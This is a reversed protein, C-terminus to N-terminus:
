GRERSRMRERINENKEGIIPTGAKRRRTRIEIKKKKLSIPLASLFEIRTRAWAFILAEELGTKKGSNEMLYSKIEKL